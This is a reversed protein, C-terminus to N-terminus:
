RECWCFKNAEEDFHCRYFNPIIEVKHSEIDTSVLYGKSELFLLPQSIAADPAYNEDYTLQKCYRHYACALNILAVCPYGYEAITQSCKECLLSMNSIEKMTDM